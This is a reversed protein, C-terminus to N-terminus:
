LSVLGSYAFGITLAALPLSKAHADRKGQPDSIPLGGLDDGSRTGRNWFALQGFDELFHFPNELIGSNISDTGFREVFVIEFIKREVAEAFENRYNTSTCRAPM